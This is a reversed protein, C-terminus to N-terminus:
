LIMVSTNLILGNAQSSESHQNPADLQRMRLVQLYDISLIMESFPQSESYKMTFIDNGHHQFELRFYLFNVNEHKYLLLHIPLMLHFM